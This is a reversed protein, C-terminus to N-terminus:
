SHYQRTTGKLARVKIVGFLLKIIFCKNLLSVAFTNIHSARLNKSILFHQSRGLGRHTLKWREGMGRAPRSPHGGGAGEEAIEM